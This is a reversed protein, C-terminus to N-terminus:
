KRDIKNVINLRGSCRNCPILRPGGGEFLEKATVRRLYSLECSPCITNVTAVCSEKM